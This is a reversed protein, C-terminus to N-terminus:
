GGLNEEKEEEIYDRVRYQESGALLPTMAQMMPIVTSQPKQYTKKM